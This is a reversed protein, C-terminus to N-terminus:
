ICFNHRIIWFGIEWLVSVIAPSDESFKEINDHCYYKQWKQPLLLTSTWLRVLCFLTFYRKHSDGIVSLDSDNDIMADDWIHKPQNTQNMWQRLHCVFSTIEDIILDYRKGSKLTFKTYIHFFGEKKNFSAGPLNFLFYM